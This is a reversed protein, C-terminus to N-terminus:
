AAASVTERFAQAIEAIETDRLTRVDLVLADAAIMGMVSPQHRRLAEALQEVTTSSPRVHVHQSSLGIEPLTGGGSYSLGPRVAVTLGPLKSLAARLRRARRLLVAPDAAMMGLVPLTEALHKPDEYLCLTAELAALTMKDARLARFLPHRAARAVADSRGVLLGCQPGGLLKDGSFAVLDAGAAVSEGVTPEHPLGYQSLDFLAGSGLDHMVGLGRGRALPVLEALTAESHFGIIRYNSQHVKLLVRTESTIASEYDSLRTKNTTGVEVM